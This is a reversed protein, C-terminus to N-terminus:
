NRADEFTGRGNPKARPSSPKQRKSVSGGFVFGALVAAIALPLTSRRGLMRLVEIGTTLMVPDAWWQPAAAAATPREAPKRHQSILVAVSAIVALLAYAGGIVLSANITGYTQQLWLFGGLSFFFLAAVAAAGAAAALVMSRLTRNVKAGIDSLPNPFV